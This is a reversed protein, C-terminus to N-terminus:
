KHLEAVTADKPVGVALPDVTYRKFLRYLSGHLPKM